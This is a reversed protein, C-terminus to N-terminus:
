PLLYKYSHDVIAEHHVNMLNFTKSANCKMASDNHDRDCVYVHCYTVRKSFHPNLILPKNSLM